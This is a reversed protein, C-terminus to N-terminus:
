AAARLLRDPELRREDAAVALQAEHLLQCVRARLLPLRLENRHHPDCADALRPERPLELLVDVAEGAREPPVASTTERVSLADRVPRERLHHAHPGADEL